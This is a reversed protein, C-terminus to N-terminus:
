KTTLGSMQKEVDQMTTPGDQPKAQGDQLPKASEEPKKNSDKPENQPKMAPYLLVEKINQSDTLLMALRDIGLGWGGTPTLGYELARCFNEDLAM